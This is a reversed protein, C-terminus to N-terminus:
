SKPVVLKYSETDFVVEKLWEILRNQTTFTQVLINKNHVKLYVGLLGNDLVKVYVKCNENEYLPDLLNEKVFLTIKM